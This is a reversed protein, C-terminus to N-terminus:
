AVMFEENKKERSQHTLSAAQIRNKRENHTASDIINM